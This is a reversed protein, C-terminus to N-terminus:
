KVLIHDQLILRYRFLSALATVEPSLVIEVPLTNPTTPNLIANLVSAADTGSTNSFDAVGTAANIARTASSTQYVYYVSGAGASGGAMQTWAEPLGRVSWADQTM